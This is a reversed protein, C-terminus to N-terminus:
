YDFRDVDIFAKIQVGPKTISGDSHFHVKINCNADPSAYHVSNLKGSYRRGEVSVYDYGSETEGTIECRYTSDTCDLSGDKVHLYINKSVNNKYAGSAWYAAPKGAWHKNPNPYGYFAQVSQIDTTSLVGGNNWRPNCYNMVSHMDWDGIVIDGNTGQPADNCLDKPTDLRNQEHAMGLAHGFEHVAIAKACYSRSAKSTSCSPSWKKFKENIVMGNRMHNLYRGLKKVHPGTDAVGIRILNNTNGVNKCEGWNGFHVGSNAKWTNDIANKVITRFEQSSQAYDEWCVDIYLGNRYNGNTWLSSSLVYSSNPEINKQSYKVDALLVSAALLWVLFISNTKIM